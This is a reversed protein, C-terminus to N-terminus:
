AQYTAPERTRRAVAAAEEFAEADVWLPAGPCLELLEGRFVLYRSARARRFPELTRRAHHLAYHLNHQRGSESGATGAM